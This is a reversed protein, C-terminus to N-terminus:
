THLVDGLAKFSEIGQLKESVTIRALVKCFASTNNLKDQICIQTHM